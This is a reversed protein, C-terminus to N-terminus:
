RSLPLDAYFTALARMEEASLKAAFAHMGRHADNTRQGGHYANLTRVFYAPNQGALAPSGNVGGQGKAGHCSACPTILRAPDGHRVLGPV